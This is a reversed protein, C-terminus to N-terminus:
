SIKEVAHDSFSGGDTAGSMDAKDSYSSVTITYSSTGKVYVTGDTGVISVTNGDADVITGESYLNTVTSAGTVVWKSNGDIYLNCYGDGGNGAYTEDDVVAGTLTSGNEMYFDLTSISDYIVDGTMDQKDATFTCQSGNSGSTGWGRQNNNGTCRLFYDNEDAYTIDVDSLYFTCETNTTYFMGGNKATISGGTMNFTGNGVESDGSMSQYVIVNWTCDNQSNDSMNGTLDCDYLNLTNLGEICVAESGNATLTANNIAIDATCYVAPSGVGNSTYTGGDVVMTGGGRDSRIAASSEGNTEVDLDWAYLTGGGAVHIGGSTDQQTKITADSVYTVGDGYSFVGAAGAADTTFTGGNIVTTGDTNLLAAGVGYFSSNDGGTSDDSDRSVMANNLTVDAGHIYIANEDTGTSAFTEDSSETDETIEKLATYSISANSSSGLGGANQASDEDSVVISEITGDDDLTVTLYDGEELDGVEVSNNDEDTLVSDDNLTITVTITDDSDTSDSKSSDSSQTSDNDSSSSDSNNTDTSNGATSGSDPSSNDGDLKEPPTSQDNSTTNSADTSNGATSNTDANGNDSSSSDGDPKEPPTSQDNSTTNSTDTSNGAPSNTDANGNDSGSSDGDLKEPPTSQDNSGTDSGGPAAGSPAGGMDGGPQMGQSMGPSTNVSLTVTNDDISEITGTFSAEAFSITNTSSTTKGCATFTTATIIATMVAITTIKKNYM